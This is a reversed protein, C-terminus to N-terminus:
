RRRILGRQEVRILGEAMKMAMLKFNKYGQTPNKEQDVKSKMGKGTQELCFCM